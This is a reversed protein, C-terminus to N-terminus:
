NPVLFLYVYFCTGKNLRSEYRIQASSQEVIRKVMALGLGMGGSKTTFRPEFVKDGKAPDIGVGNDCIEITARNEDVSVKVSIDPAREEPIAQVANKLLNNFVRNWQAKDAEVPLSTVETELRTGHQSFLEVSSRLVDMLDFHEKKLDPLSAFRSFAEAIDKLHDIQEITSSTIRQVSEDDIKSLKRELQQLQLRMPTLPNKIEHAVQRAMDRWAHDRENRALEVASNELAKLMRNYEDVLAGIEDHMPWDLPENTGSLRTSKLKQAIEDLSGAIYNSLFFALLAAAAFLLLYIESLTKLFRKLEDIHSKDGQFYPLNILAVSSGQRDTIYDFTSLYKAQDAKGSELIVSGKNLEIRNLMEKDLRDPISFREILQPNSSILLRGKLSYINIDLKHIDALECIKDSFLTVISDPDSSQTEQRLFYDVASNVAYEKRKLRELHYQENEKRFHYFTITGTLLFSVLILLMMSTFIRFRLSSGQWHIM